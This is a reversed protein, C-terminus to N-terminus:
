RDPSFVEAVVVWRGDSLRWVRLYHGQEARWRYSGYTYGLDASRASGAALPGLRPAVEGFQAARAAAGRHLAGAAGTRVEAHVPTPGAATDLAAFDPAPATGAPAAPWLHLSRTSDPTAGALGHDALLRLEGGPDRRWVSLYWGTGAVPADRSPRAEFPGTSYGLDGAASIDAVAPYWSLQGSTAPRDAFFELGNVPGPRFVVGDPALYETFGAKVGAAAVRAAFAREAAVVEAATGRQANAPAPLLAGALLAAGATLPARSRGV